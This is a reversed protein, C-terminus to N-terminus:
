LHIQVCYVVLPNKFNFNLLRLIHFPQPPLVPVTADMIDGGEGM